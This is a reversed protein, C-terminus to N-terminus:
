QRAYYRQKGYLKFNKTSSSERWGEMGRMIENLERTNYRTMDEKSKDLCECWIEAVCVFERLETGQPSLDSSFFAKKDHIDKTNWDEPLLTDLFEEIVGKREDAESHSRQEANAIKEAESSMFLPEKNKFLHVAEAWVQQRIEQSDLLEMLEPNDVVQLGHVDVPLFRRNGSPDRLFGKNNTTGFFVCQRKYTESTRAYAARFTDERKTIFHKVAEVEAKRLGSLEAMEIIWAGQIQELAEKGQVTLFTDSFWTGGLWDLLSSKGSGQEAGVLVLVYDFKIAPVFIRAVAGVLMKRMAERVYITDKAGLYDILLTDIREVGDWELEQLYERVPHFSHREFELALADDVKLTGAIGYVTEIYNRVGSYDVNRMVEPHKIVRWPVSKFLYRKGDFDNQRFIGQLKEDNAFILNLNSASSLFRGKADAEMESTWELDLDETFGEEQDDAFEYKVDDFRDKAISKRVEPDSVALEEMERFSKTESGSIDL